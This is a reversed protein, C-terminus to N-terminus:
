LLSYYSSSENSKNKIVLYHKTVCLLFTPNDTKFFRYFKSLKLGEEENYFPVVIGTGYKFRQKTSM